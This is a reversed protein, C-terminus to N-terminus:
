GHRPGAPPLPHPAAAAAAGGQARFGGGARAPRRCPTNLYQFPPMNCNPCRQSCTSVQLSALQLQNGHRAAIAARSRGRVPFRWCSLQVRTGLAWCQSSPLTSLVLWRTCPREVPLGCANFRVRGEPRSPGLMWPEWSAALTPGRCSSGQWSRLRASARSRNPEILAPYCTPAAICAGWRLRRTTRLFSPPRAPPAAASPVVGCVQASHAAAPVRRRWSPRGIGASVGPRAHLSRAALMARPRTAPHSSSDRLLSSPNQDGSCCQFCVCAGRMQSVLGDRCPLLSM